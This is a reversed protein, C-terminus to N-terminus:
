ILGACTGKCQGDECEICTDGDWKGKKRGTEQLAPAAKRRKPAMALEPDVADEHSPGAPIKNAVLFSLDTRLLRADEHTVDFENNSQIM